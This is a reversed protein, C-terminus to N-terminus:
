LIQQYQKFFSVVSQPIAVRKEPLVYSVLIQINEKVWNLSRKKLVNAKYYSRGDQLIQIIKVPVNSHEIKSEIREKMFISINKEEKGFASAIEKCLKKYFFKHEKEQDLHEELSLIPNFLITSRINGQMENMLKIAVLAGMGEAILHIKQNLIEKRIMYEYLRKALNVAKENGWNKRYLNSYFVTYGNNLLYEVLLKKGENQMWYSNNEDVFHRDDGIILIGFGNPQKPYHIMNWETDIQFNRNKM